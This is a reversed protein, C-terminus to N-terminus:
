SVVSFLVRGGAKRKVSIIDLRLGEFGNLDVAANRFVGANGKGEITVRLAEETFGGRAAVPAARVPSKVTSPMILRRGNAPM